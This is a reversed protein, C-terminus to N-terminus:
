AFRHRILYLACGAALAAAALELHMASTSAILWGCLLVSAVPVLYGGPVLFGQDGEHRRRLVPVALCTGAYSVIRAMASLKALEEFSGATALALGLVGQVAIAVYPTHFRPHVRCLWAPLHGYEAMAYLVRPATLMMGGETGCISLLAGITILLAGTEGMFGRAATALPAAEAALDALTGMAVLHVSLYIIAVIALTSFIARPVARRHDLMEEAPFVLVEFGSIVYIMFLAAEGFSSLSPPEGPVLRAGVLHPLGAVVFLTLTALKVVTLLDITWAGWAVGVMNVLTLGGLLLALVVFRPTGFGTAPMLYAAYTVLANALSAMSTIRAIWTFWGIQFGAFPGFAKQAYLFPGGSSGLRGGAEAFCLAILSMLVGSFLYVLVSWSGAHRAVTSPALFIGGGIVGNVGLAVVDWTTLARILRPMTLGVRMSQVLLQTIIRPGPPVM